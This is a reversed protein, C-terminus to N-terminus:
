RNKLSALAGAKRQRFQAKSINGAKYQSKLGGKGAVGAKKLKSHRRALAAAGLGAAAGAALGPHSQVAKVASAVHPKAAAIGKAALDKGHRLLGKAPEDILDKFESLDGYADEIDDLNYINGYEDMIYEYGDEDIWYNYQPVMEDLNDLVMRAKTIYM